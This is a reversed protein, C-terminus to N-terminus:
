GRIALQTELEMAVSLFDMRSVPEFMDPFVDKILVIPIFAKVANVKFVQKALLKLRELTLINEAIRILSSRM